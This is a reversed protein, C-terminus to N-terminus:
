RIEIGLSIPPAALNVRALFAGDVGGFFAFAPTLWYSLGIGVGLYRTDGTGAINTPRFRGGLAEHATLHIEGVLGFRTSAGVQVTGLLVNRLARRTNWQAGLTASIWAPSISLGGQFEVAFVHTEVTPRYVVDIGGLDYGSFEDEGIGAVYGYRIETAAVLTPSRLIAFRAGVAEQGSYVTSEAGLAAFGIPLGQATLTVNEAVGYEVYYGLAHDHFSQDLTATSGDELFAKDGFILRDWAKLYFEGEPQTWGAANATEDGLATLAVSVFLIGAKRDSLAM